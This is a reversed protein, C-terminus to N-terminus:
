CINTPKKTVMLTLLIAFLSLKSRKGDDASRNEHAECSIMHNCKYLSNKLKTDTLLCFFTLRQLFM